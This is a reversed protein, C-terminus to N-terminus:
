LRAFNKLFKLGADHSKEPHCQMGFINKEYVIAPFLEGYNTVGLISDESNTAFYFSHLFYFEANEFLDKVIAHSKEYYVTNWGMHPMPVNEGNLRRVSGSILGLGKETGEESSSALMQMGVCIGLLPKQMNRAHYETATRLGSNNFAMVAHDFSGVGPLILHTCKEIHDPLTVQLTGIDLVRFCNEIAQVNGIGYNLIGIM